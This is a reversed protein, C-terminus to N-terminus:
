HARAAGVFVLGTWRLHPKRHRKLSEPFPSARPFKNGAQLHEGPAIPKRTRLDKPQRRALSRLKEPAVASRPSNILCFPSGPGSGGQPRFLRTRGAGGGTGMPFGVLLRPVSRWSNSPPPHPPSVAILRLPRSPSTAQVGRGEGSGTPGAPGSAASRPPNAQSQLHPSTRQWM